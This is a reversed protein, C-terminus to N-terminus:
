PVNVSMQWEQLTYSIDTYYVDSFCLHDVNVHCGNIFQTSASVIGTAELSSGNFRFVPGGSDEEANAIGGSPNYAHVLYCAHGQGQRGQEQRCVNSQDIVLGCIEGTTAGDNCVQYGIPNSTYGSVFALQPNSDAGTTIGYWSNIRLVETDTGGDTVDRAGVTGMFAGSGQAGPCNALDYPCFQNYIYSGSTFCHAATLMYKQGDLHSITGFAATCSVNGDSISDGANYPSTDNTRSATLVARESPAVDFVHIKEAGYRLRLLSAKAPTLSDVGIWEKGTKTDPWFEEMQIGAGALLDDDALLRQQLSNLSLLSHPTQLFTLTGPPALMRFKSEAEPDLKTLYVDVHQGGNVGVLGGYMDPYTEFGLSDLASPLSALAPPLTESTSQGPNSAGPVGSDEGSAYATSVTSSAILITSAFAIASMLSKRSM